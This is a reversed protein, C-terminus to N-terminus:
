GRLRCLRKSGFILLASVVLQVGFSASFIPISLHDFLPEIGFDRVFVFTGIINSMTVAVVYHAWFPERKRRISAYIYPASVLLPYVAFILLVSIESYRFDPVLLGRVVSVGYVYIIVSRTNM